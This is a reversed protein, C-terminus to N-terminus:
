EKLKNLYRYVSAQSCGLQEATYQVAGKLRFIGRENLRSIFCIREDPTMREPPVNLCATEKQFIERIMLSIDNHVNERPITSQSSLVVSALTTEPKGYERKLYDKPHILDMLQGSLSLYRSDDFNIGLLGVPTDAENKIVLASSRITKKTHQLYSTFNLVCNDAAEGKESLLKEVEEPLPSGITQGSIRGNAIAIVSPFEAELDYLTIEYDPGLTKGLFDILASFNQLMKKTMKNVM